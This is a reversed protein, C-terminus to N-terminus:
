PRIEDIDQPTVRDSWATLKARGWEGIWKLETWDTPVGTRNRDSAAYVRTALLAYDITDPM